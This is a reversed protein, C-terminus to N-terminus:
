QVFALLLAKVFNSIIIVSPQFTMSYFIVYVSYLKFLQSWYNQTQNYTSAVMKIPEPALGNLRRDLDSKEQQDM